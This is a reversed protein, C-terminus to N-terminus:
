ARLFLTLAEALTSSHEREKGGEERHQKGELGTGKYEATEKRNKGYGVNIRWGDMWGDM